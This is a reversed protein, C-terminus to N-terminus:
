KQVTAEKALLESMMKLLQQNILVSGDKQVRNTGMWTEYGGFEHQAPTPLYGYTDNALSITFAKKFPTKEKLELGIEAIVEFPIASVALDGIQLVQLLAICDDPGDLLEQCRQAYVKEYTHHKPANDPKALVEAMYKQQAADPKRFKLVLEHSKMALPVWDHYEVAPLAELVRQAVKEAVEHMKEYPKRAPGRSQFNINNVDGSTGNSLMAVFPPSTKEVHMLEGIRESFVAFYDASIHGRPVGGVYHLGYNALLSLPKGDLTQVSIFSIEPDPIGAPRLLAPNGTPPNMRVQDIGGFPNKGLDPNMVHWRRCFVESPEATSGWGIRAPALNAYANRVAEAIRRSLFPQYNPNDCSVGSHSHTAAILINDAPIDTEAKLIKRAEDCVHRSIKLSDCIVFGIITSGDDLLLCRAHMEDHIYSALPRTFNGVIEEGLPPTINAKAAGARFVKEASQAAVVGPGFLLGTVCCLMLGCRRSRAAALKM